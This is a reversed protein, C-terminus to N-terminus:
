NKSFKGRQLQIPWAVDEGLLGAAYLPWRPNRLMERGM